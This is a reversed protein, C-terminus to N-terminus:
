MQRQHLRREQSEKRQHGVLNSEQDAKMFLRGVSRGCSEMTRKASSVVIKM